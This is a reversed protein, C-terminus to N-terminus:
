RGGSTPAKSFVQGHRARLLQRHPKGTPTRPLHEIVVIHGEIQLADLAQVVTSRADEPSTGAAATATVTLLGGTAPLVVAERVEPAATLAEEVQPAFFTERAGLVTDSVRGLPLIEGPGTRRGVDGTRYWEGPRTGGEAEGFLGTGCHSSVAEIEGIHDPAGPIPTLRVRVDGPPTLGTDIQIIDQLNALIMGFETSGFIRRLQIGLRDAVQRVIRNSLYSGGCMPLRVRPLPRPDEALVAYQEPLASLVTVGAAVLDTATSLRARLSLALTAGSLLAPFVHLDVAHGGDITHMNYFVEDEGTGTVRLWNEIEALLADQRWLALRPEGTSGSTEQVRCPGAHRAPSGHEPPHAALWGVEVVPVDDVRGGANPETVVLTPAVRAVQRTLAEEAAETSVPCHVVGCAAMAFLLAVYDVSNALRTVVVAGPKVGAARLGARQADVLALLERYSTCTGNYERVATANPRRQAQVALVSYLM